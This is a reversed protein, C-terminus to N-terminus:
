LDASPARQYSRSLTEITQMKNLDFKATFLIDEARKLARMPLVARAEDTCARLFPLTRAEVAEATLPIVPSHIEQM